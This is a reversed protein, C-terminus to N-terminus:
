AEGIVDMVPVASLRELADLFAQPPDVDVSDRGHLVPIRHIREGDHWYVQETLPNSAAQTSAQAASLLVPVAGLSSTDTLPVALLQDPTPVAAIVGAAPWPGVFDPLNLLRSASLNDPALFVFLGEVRGVPQWGGPRTQARLNQTAREVLDETAGEIGKTRGNGGLEDIAGAVAGSGIRYACGSGLLAAILLFRHM